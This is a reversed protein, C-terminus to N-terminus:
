RVSNWWQYNNLAYNIERKLNPMNEEPELYHYGHILNYDEKNLNKDEFNINLESLKRYFNEELFNLGNYLLKFKKINKEIFDDIITNNPPLTNYVDRFYQLLEFIQNYENNMQNYEKYFNIFFDKDEETLISIKNRLNYLLDNYTDNEYSSIFDVLKNYKEFNTSGGAYKLYNAIDNLYLNLDVGWYSAVILFKKLGEMSKFDPEELFYKDDIEIEDSDEFFSKYMDGSRLWSPVDDKTLIM